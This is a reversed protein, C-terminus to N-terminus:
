NNKLIINIKQIDRNLSHKWVSLIKMYYLEMWMVVFKIKFYIFIQSLNYEM